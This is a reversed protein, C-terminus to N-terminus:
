VRFRVLGDGVIDFSYLESLDSFLIGSSLLMERPKTGGELSMVIDDKDMGLVDSLMEVMKSYGSSADYHLTKIQINEDETNFAALSSNQKSAYDNIVPKLAGVFAFGLVSVFIAVFAFVKKNTM